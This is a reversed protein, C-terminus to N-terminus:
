TGILGINQMYTKLTAFDTVQGATARSTAGAGFFGLRSTTGSGIVVNATSAGVTVATADATSHRVGAYVAKGADDDALGVIIKNRLSDSM